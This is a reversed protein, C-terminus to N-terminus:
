RPQDFRRMSKIPAVGLASGQVAPVDSPLLPREVLDIEMPREKGERFLMLKLHSGVALGELVKETKQPDSTSVGNISTVIDGGLLISAGDVSIQLEGGRIGAKEAPSGIQIQPGM